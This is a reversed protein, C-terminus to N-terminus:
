RLERLERRCAESFAIMPDHAKDDLAKRWEEDSRNPAIYLDILVKIVADASEAVESSSQLLIRGRLAYIGVLNSHDIKEETAAHSYLRAVEELFKSYLEDRRAREATLRALRSQTHQTIWSTAFSTVGGIATGALASLTSIYASDM